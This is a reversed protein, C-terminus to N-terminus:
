KKYKRGAKKASATMKKRKTKYKAISNKHNEKMRSQVEPSQIAISHKQSNKVFLAYDKKLRKENKGQKKIAKGASRPRRVKVESRSNGSKGFLGHGKNRSTQAECLTTLVVLAVIFMVFKRLILINM